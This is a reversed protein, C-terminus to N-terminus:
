EEGLVIWVKYFVIIIDLKIFWKAKLINRLTERIFPLLYRDKISLDNLGRYDVCFRVGRGLKRVLLVLAAAPLKSIYIFNKDLLDILTKRLYLLEEKNM